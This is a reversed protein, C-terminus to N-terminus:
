CLRAKVTADDEASFTGAGEETAIERVRSSPVGAM